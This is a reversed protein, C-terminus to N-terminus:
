DGGSLCLKGARFDCSFDWCCTNVDWTQLFRAQCFQRYWFLSLLDHRSASFFKTLARRSVALRQSVGGDGDPDLECAKKADAEALKWRGLARYAQARNHLTRPDTPALELSQPVEIGRLM